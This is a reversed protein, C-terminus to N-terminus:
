CNKIGWTHAAIFVGYLYRSKSFQINYLDSGISHGIKPNEDLIRLNPLTIIQWEGSLVGGTLNNFSIGYNLGTETLLRVPPTGFPSHRSLSSANLM